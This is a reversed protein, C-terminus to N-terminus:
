SNQLEKIQRLNYGFDPLMNHQGEPWTLADNAKRHQEKIKLTQKSPPPKPAGRRRQFTLM